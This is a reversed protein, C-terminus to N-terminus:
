GGQKKGALLGAGPAFLSVATNVTDDIGGLGAQFNQMSAGELARKYNLDDYYKRLKDQYVKDGERAMLQSVNSYIGFRGQKDQAEKIALDQISQDTQGQVGAAMALATSADGANRAIAANTNAASTQLGQEAANAGAMRGQYLNQGQGYLGKINKDVEYTTNIPNISKALKKQKGSTIFNGIASFIGM